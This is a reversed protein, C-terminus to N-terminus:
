QVWVTDRITSTSPQLSCLGAPLKVDKGKSLGCRAVRQGQEEEVQGLAGADQLEHIKMLGLEATVDVLHVCAIVRGSGVVVADM